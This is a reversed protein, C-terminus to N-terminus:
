RGYAVKFKFEAIEWDELTDIDQVEMESLIIAGTNDTWIMKTKQFAPVNLWYFQGSDHFAPTLDQSRTLQHEPQIFAVRGNKDLSVARQIPFSFKLLPLVTSYKKLNLLNFGEILRKKTVFPATSYLCCATDFYQGIKEYESIVELIVDATTAFDDSNKDSRLFPVNAGLKKAIKAIESDDTSVMVEDFLGSAIAAEISYAIIPKGLFDKINKRPIRKSGGRAPIIALCKM